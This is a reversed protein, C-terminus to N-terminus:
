FDAGAPILKILQHRLGSRIRHAYGDVWWRVQRAGSVYGGEVGGSLRERVRSPRTHRRECEVIWWGSEHPACNVARRRAGSGRRRGVRPMETSRRPRTRSRSRRRKVEGDSSAGAEGREGDSPVAGAVREDTRFTARFRCVARCAAGRRRAACPARPMRTAERRPGRRGRTPRPWWGM